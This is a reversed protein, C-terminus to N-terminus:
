RVAAEAATKTQQSFPARTGARPQKARALVADGRASARKRIWGRARRPTAHVPTLHHGRLRGVCPRAAAFVTEAARVGPRALPQITVRAKARSSNAIARIRM